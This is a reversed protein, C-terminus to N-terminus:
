PTLFSLSGRGPEYVNQIGPLRGLYDPHWHYGDGGASIILDWAERTSCRVLVDDSPPRGGGADKVCWGSDPGQPNWRPHGYAVAAVAGFLFNVRFDRSSRAGLNIRMGDHIRVIIDFAENFSISRAPGVTGTPTTVTPTTPVVVVVPALPTRFNGWVSWPGREADLGARIRWGYPTDYALDIDVVHTGSNATEGVSLTYVVRDASDVVEIEYFFGIPSHKGTSNTWILTPRRSDVRESDFPSVVGPATVKIELAGSIASLDGATTASPTTPSMPTGTCSVGLAVIATVAVVSVYKMLNLEGKLEGFVGQADDSPSPAKRLLCWPNYCFFCFFSLEVALVDM